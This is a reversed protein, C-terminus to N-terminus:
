RGTASTRAPFHATVELGGLASSRAFALRGGVSEVIDRAIALGLGYGPVSEDARRGRVGLSDLDEPSCGPGDDSVVIDIGDRERIEIQVQAHAWKCANDALNGILELLDQRDFPLSGQPATWQITVRRDGHIRALLTVLTPLEAHPDFTAATPADGALRARKLERDVRLRIADAHEQIMQKLEPSAAMRPDDLLRFVSALPSKLAHSLNGVATRSQKLRREVFALLRNIEEVLPRIETPVSEPQVRTGHKQVQLVADRISDLTRLAWRLERRQFLVAGALVTLSLALFRLRFRALDRRLPSLDEGLALVVPQGDVRTHTNLVLLPQGAPGALHAISDTALARPDFPGASGFSASHIRRGDADIVYYHGSYPRAYITGPSRPDCRIQGTDGVELSALLSDADHRLRSEMESEVLHVIARDAVFWQLFLGGLLALLV